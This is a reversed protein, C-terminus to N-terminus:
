FFLPFAFFVTRFFTPQAVGYLILISGKPNQHFFSAFQSPSNFASSIRGREIAKRRRLFYLCFINMLSGWSFLFFFHAREGVIKTSARRSTKLRRWTAHTEYNGKSRNQTHKHTRRSDEKDLRNHIKKVMASQTVHTFCPHKPLSHSALRFCFRRAREKEQQRTNKETNIRKRCVGVMVAPLM